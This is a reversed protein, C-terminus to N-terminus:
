RPLPTPHAPTRPTPVTPTDVTLSVPLGSVTPRGTHDVEVTVEAGAVRLGRVALAGLEAGALPRLAVRSNPVDPHLGTGAQVLLVAAAASWAQPRCAAPYPVPRGLVERDDGGYLEPLRYDFAEAAGLLGEALGLAAERFGARALGALVIATDHAWISGCHYSLPSFGADDTSMTRLGFGGALAPGALLEAVRAEEAGDLLGTGLLHGINSTLSDVPRKDRDLALAPRPGDPGGDVWFRERFTAALRDAYGRWRDAGPRGFADLLDAGNVAAQHAYGQVEALVIPPAALRADRFRISDGSDKWGQNALGHGTTDVYEILGDGDADAHEGLWGLAAELHPLLPEVQEAPLGWRWADHLLAVWLMTADVTGFYAPPLRKGPGPSFEGRRLEHLIKGPAEETAPDVRVGQRRALVRLTGAALDTGLPLMMRAAWLSDRGFLTLFWPVGAGLFVDRGDGATDTLRLGRLDDLSRDLLRVIRRDDARVEPRAWDPEGPPTAVVARPDAVRLRWRLTAAGRAPLEVPWSLRPATARDAAADVTAGDGTVTVTVDDATWTLEGPRGTTAPLPPATLGIKVGEVPALDCGLDVSVTARVPTAATSVVRVEEDLGHPGAQRIREIRVTPDPGPDGLWRALGVFRAGHPGAAGHTLAEPERDDVRLEARALVRADAHFVGQVGTPRIQGARDGLASTPALLVGVLDHLLPQLHPETM